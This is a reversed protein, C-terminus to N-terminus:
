VVSNLEFIQTENQSLGLGRQSKFSLSYESASSM